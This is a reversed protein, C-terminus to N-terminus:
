EEGESNMSFWLDSSDAMLTKVDEPATGECARLRLRWGLAVGHFLVFM